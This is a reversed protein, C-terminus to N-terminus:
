KPLVGRVNFNIEPPHIRFDIIVGQHPVLAVNTEVQGNRQYRENAIHGFVNKEKAAINGIRNGESVTEELTKIYEVQNKQSLERMLSYPKKLDMDDYVQSMDTELDAPQTKITLEAPIYNGWSSPLSASINM